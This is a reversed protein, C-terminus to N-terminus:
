LLLINEFMNLDCLYKIYAYILKKNSNEQFKFEM